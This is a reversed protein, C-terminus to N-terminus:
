RQPPELLSQGPGTQVQLHSHDNHRHHQDKHADQALPCILVVLLAPRCEGHPRFLLRQSVPVRLANPINLVSHCRQQSPSLFPSPKSTSATRVLLCLSSQLILIACACDGKAGAGAGAGTSYWFCFCSRYDVDVLAWTGLSGLSRHALTGGGSEFAAHVVWVKSRSSSPARGVIPSGPSMHGRTHVLVTPMRPSAPTLKSGLSM